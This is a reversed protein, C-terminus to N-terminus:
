GTDLTRRPHRRTDCLSLLEFDHPQRIVASQSSPKARKALFSHPLQHPSHSHAARLSSAPGIGWEHNPASEERLRLGLLERSNRNHCRSTGEWKSEWWFLQLWPM